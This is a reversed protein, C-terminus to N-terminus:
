IYTTYNTFNCNLVNGRDGDWNFSINEFQIDRFTINAANILFNITKSFGAIKHGNGNITINEVNIQLNWNIIYDKTLNIQSNPKLNNFINSFEDTYTFICNDLTVEEKNVDIINNTFNSDNIFGVGYYCKIASGLDNATNNIFQCNVVNWKEFIHSEFYIAGGSGTAYNNIFVSNTISGNKGDWYIAGGYGNSSCNIFTSNFISGNSGRWYISGGNNYSTCNIFTSNILSVNDKWRIEVVSSQCKCNKFICYKFTSNDSGWYILNNSGSCNIFTSNFIRGNNALLTVANSNTCNIFNCNTISGFDGTWYILENYVIYKSGDVNIILDSYDNYGTFDTCNIFTCNDLLGYSGKWNINGKFLINKLSVNNGLINFIESKNDCDIIHGQGDVVINSQNITIGRKFGTDNECYKYNNVLKVTGGSQNNITTNLQAFSNFDSGNTSLENNFTENEFSLNTEDGASVAGILLILSMFLTILFINKM